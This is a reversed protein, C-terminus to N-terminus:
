VQIQIANEPCKKKCVGCGVCNELIQPVKNKLSIANEVPCHEFCESCNLKRKKSNILPFNLCKQQEVKAKGFYPLVGSELPLLAKTECASICPYDECLYCARFNVDIIPGEIKSVRFITNYPCAIICDGCSNCLSLFKEPDQSGPPRLFQIKIEETNHKKSDEEISYFAFPELANIVSQLKADIYNGVPTKYFERAIEKIGDSLFQKRDM